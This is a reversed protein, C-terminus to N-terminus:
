DERRVVSPAAPRCESMVITVRRPRTRVFPCPLLPGKRAVAGGERDAPTRLALCGRFFSLQARHGQVRDISAPPCDLALESPGRRVASIQDSIPSRSPWASLTLCTWKTRLM